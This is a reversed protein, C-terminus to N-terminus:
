LDTSDLNSRIAKMPMNYQVFLDCIGRRPQPFLFAEVYVQLDGDCLLKLFCLVTSCIILIVIDMERASIPSQEQITDVKCLQNDIQKSKGPTLDNM